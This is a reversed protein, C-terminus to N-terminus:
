PCYSTERIYFRADCRALWYGTYAACAVLVVLLVTVPKM